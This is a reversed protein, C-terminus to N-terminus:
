IYEGGCLRKHLVYCANFAANHAITKITSNKMSKGYEDKYHKDLFQLLDVISAEYIEDWFVPYLKKLKSATM